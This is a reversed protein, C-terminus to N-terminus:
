EKPQRQGPANADGDRRPAMTARRSRAWAIAQSPLYRRTRRMGWTEGPMGAADFRRITRVSLSMLKALERADVYRERPVVAVPRDSV